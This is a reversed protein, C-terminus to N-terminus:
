PRKLDLFMCFGTADETISAQAEPERMRQHLDQMEERTRYILHWHVAYDM